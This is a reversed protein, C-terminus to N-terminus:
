KAGGLDETERQEIMAELDEGASSLSSAILKVAEILGGERYGDMFDHGNGDTRMVANEALLKAIADLAYGSSSMLGAASRARVLAISM